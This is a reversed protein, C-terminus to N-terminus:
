NERPRRIRFLTIVGIWKFTMDQCFVIKFFKGNEDSVERVFYFYTGQVTEPEWSDGDLLFILKVVDDISFSSRMRSRLKGKNIHELDVYIRSVPKQNFTITKIEVKIASEPFM